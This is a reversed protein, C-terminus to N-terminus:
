AMGGQQGQQQAQMDGETAGNPMVPLQQALMESSKQMEEDSPYFEEAKLDATRCIERLFPLVKTFQATFQNSISFQLMTMLTKGRVQKDKYSQFGTAVPTFDGKINENRSALMHYHYLSIIMPEIHGEDCNRIIQGEIKNVAEAIQSLEFATRKADTAQGSQNRSVMGEEDMFSRFMEILAPTNGTIDPPSFFTLAKRVDDTGEFARFTKGPYLSTDQGPALMSPNYGLMLNSALAKNDLMARTLGNIVMQSDECGEPVGVGAAENPLEEHKALKLPRYPFPNLVPKSIVMPESKGMAVVCVIEVEQFDRVDDLGKIESKDGKKKSYEKLYRVPVRGYYLLTPIVRKNTSFQEFAPGMSEDIEASGESSNGDDNANFQSLIDDIAEKDYGQERKLEEFRGKSMMDRLIIAQGKDADAHELDWFVAWVGPNEVMPIMAQKQEITFRGYQMALEPPIYLGEMGPVFFKPVMSMRPRLVPVHLWSWGYLVSELRSGMFHKEAKSEQLNDEIQKKMGDCRAKAIEEPMVFGQFDESIVTPKIDWPIHGGQMMLSLESSYGSIVKNKTLRVFVKSRWDNGETAKWKKLAASNYRGRFADYNRRMQDELQNSREDKLWKFVDDYIYKALRDEAM